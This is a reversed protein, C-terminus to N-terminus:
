DILQERSGDLLSRAVQMNGHTLRRYHPEMTPHLLQLSLDELGLVGHPQHLADGGLPALSFELFAPAGVKTKSEAIGGAEAHRDKALAAFHGHHKPLDRDFQPGHILEVQGLDEFLEDHSGATQHQHGPWGPRTFRGRQRRHDVIKVFVNIVVNNRDFVRDLKLMVVFLRGDVLTFYADVDCAKGLRNAPSQSL